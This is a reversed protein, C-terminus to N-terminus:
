TSHLPRRRPLPMVRACTRWLREQSEEVGDDHLHGQPVVTDPRTILRDCHCPHHHRGDTARDSGNGSTSCRSRASSSEFIAWVTKRPAASMQAVSRLPQGVYWSRQTLEVVGSESAADTPSPGLTPLRGPSREAGMELNSGPDVVARMSLRCCCAGQGVGVGTNAAAATYVTRHLAESSPAGGRVSAAAHSHSQTIHSTSRHSGWQRM